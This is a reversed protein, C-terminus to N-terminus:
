FYKYSSSIITLSYLAMHTPEAKTNIAENFIGAKQSLWFAILIACPSLEASPDWKEAVHILYIPKNRLISAFTQTNSVIVLHSFGELDRNWFHAKLQM